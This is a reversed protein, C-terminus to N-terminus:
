NSEFGKEKREKRKNDNNENNETNKAARWPESKGLSCSIKKQVQYIGMLCAHLFNYFNNQQYTRSLLFVIIVRYIYTRKM